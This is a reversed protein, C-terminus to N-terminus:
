PASVSRVKSRGGDNWSLMKWLSGHKKRQSFSKVFSVFDSSTLHSLRSDFNVASFDVASSSERM